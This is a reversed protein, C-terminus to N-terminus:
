KARKSKSSMPLMFGGLVIKDLLLSNKVRNLITRTNECDLKIFKDQDEPKICTKICNSFRSKGSIYNILELNHHDILNKLAYYTCNNFEDSKYIKKPVILCNTLEPDKDLTPDISYSVNNSMSDRELGSIKVLRKKMKEKNKRKKNKILSKNIGTM